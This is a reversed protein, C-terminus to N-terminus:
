IQRYAPEDINTWENKNRNYPTLLIDVFANSFQKTQCSISRMTNMRTIDSSIGRLLTNRLGNQSVIIENEGFGIFIDGKYAALLTVIHVVRFIKFLM